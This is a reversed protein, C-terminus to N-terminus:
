PRRLRILAGLVALILLASGASRAPSPPAACNCSEVRADHVGGDEDGGGDNGADPGADLGGDPGADGELAVNFYSAARTSEAGNDDTAWVRWYYRRGDELDETLTWSTSGVTAAVPGSAIPDPYTDSSAVEFWISLTDGEPDSPTSVTLVPRAVSVDESRAPSVIVPAAPPQNEVVTITVQLVADGDGEVDPDDDDDTAIFTLVHDGVDDATPTWRVAGDALLVMGVPRDQVVITVVDGGPDSVEPSYTFEQGILVTAETPSTLVPPANLVPIEVVREDTNGGPDSARVGLRVVTPGDLGAASVTVTEGTADDYSGDLDTDWEITVPDGQRDIASVQLDLSGGEYLTPDETVVSLRPADRRPFFVVTQNALDVTNTGAHLYQIGNTGDANEIGITTVDAADGDSLYHLYIEDAGEVLEIQFSFDTSGSLYSVNNWEVVFRRSPAVGLTEYYINGGSSTLDEWLVAVFNDIGGATPIVPGSCCGTGAGATFSIFGNTSIVVSDYLTGYFEFDFGLSATATSDDGSPGPTGTAAITDFAHVPSDPDTPNLSDSYAYDGTLDLGLYAQAPRAGALLAGLILPAFFWVKL